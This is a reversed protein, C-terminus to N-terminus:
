RHFYRDSGTTALVAPTHSQLVKLFSLYNDENTILRAYFSTILERVPLNYDITAIDIKIDSIEILSKLHQGPKERHSFYDILFQLLDINPKPRNITNRTYDKGTLGAVIDAFEKKIEALYPSNPKQKVIVRIFEEMKGEGEFDKILSFVKTNYNEGRAIVSLQVDMKESLCIELEDPNPYAGIIGQRLIERKTGDLKM